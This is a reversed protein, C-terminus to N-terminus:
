ELSTALIHGYCQHWQDWSLKPQSVYHSFEKSQAASADLLYLRGQMQGYGIINGNKDELYCQRKHFIIRGDKEDLQSVSLLCNPAKPIYLVHQLKHSLM